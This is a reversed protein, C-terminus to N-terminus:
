RRRVELISARTKPPIRGQVVLLDHRSLNRPLFDSYFFVRGRWQKQLYRRNLKRNHGLKLKYYGRRRLANLMSSSLHVSYYNRTNRIVIYRNVTIKKTKYIVFIQTCSSNGM